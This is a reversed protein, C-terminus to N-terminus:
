APNMFIKKLILKLYIGLEYSHEKTCNKFYDKSTRLYKRLLMYIKYKQKNSQIESILEIFFVGLSQKQATKLSFMHM